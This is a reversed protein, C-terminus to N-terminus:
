ARAGGGRRRRRRHRDLRTVTRQRRLKPTSAYPDLVLEHAAFRHGDEPSVSRPRSPRVAHGAAGGALLLGLRTCEGFALRQIERRAAADFVCLDVIEADESFLAFNVGEGDWTAGHPYPKGLWVATVSRPM